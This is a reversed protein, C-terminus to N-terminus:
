ALTRSASGRNRAMQTHYRNAHDAAARGTAEPNDSGYVNVTQNFTDNSAQRGRSAGATADARRQQAARQM